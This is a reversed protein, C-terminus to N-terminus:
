RWEYSNLRYREICAILDRAYTRSTAYGARQLGRAWSKYDAMPYSFLFGYRRGNVLVMSHDEFSQEFTDYARFCEAPRDDNKLVTRSAWSRGCKIGFHNNAVRALYSTGSGSELIAQALIISVPIGHAAAQRMAVDKVQEVYDRTRDQAASVHSALLAAVVIVLLNLIRNFHKAM